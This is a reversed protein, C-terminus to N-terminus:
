GGPDRRHVDAPRQARWPADGRDERLRQGRPQRRARPRRGRTRDQRSRRPGRPVRGDGANDAGSTNEPGRDLDIRSGIWAGVLCDSALARAEGQLPSAIATQVADAWALGIVYGVAFDGYDDYLVRGFAENFVVENTAPCHVAGFTAMGEPDGCNDAAGAAPRLTVSPM